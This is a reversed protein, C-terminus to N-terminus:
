HCLSQKYVKNASKCFKTPRIFSRKAIIEFNWPALRNNIYCGDPNNHIYELTCVSSFVDDNNIFLDPHSQIFEFTLWKYLLPNGSKITDRLEDLHKEIFDITAMQVIVSLLSYKKYQSYFRTDHLVSKILLKSFKSIKPQKAVKRFYNLLKINSNYKYLFELDVNDNQLLSGFYKSFIKGYRLILVCAFKTSISNNQCIGHLCWKQNCIGDPYKLIFEENIVNNYSLPVIHFAFYSNYNNMVEEIIDITLLHSNQLCEGMYCRMKHYTLFEIILDLTINPNRILGTLSWELDIHNQIFDCTIIPNSSLERIHIYDHHICCDEIFKLTLNPNDILDELNWKTGGIGDRHNKIFDLTIAPNKSLLPVNWKKGNMGDPYDDIIQSPLFPNKSLLDTDFENLNKTIIEYFLESYDSM